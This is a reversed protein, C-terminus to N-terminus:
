ITEYKIPKVDIKNAEEETIKAFFVFTKTGIWKVGFANFSGNKYCCYNKNYKIELQWKNDKILKNLANTYKMFDKVSTPNRWKKYFEEDYVDMGSVPKSKKYEKEPELKNVLLLQNHEDVWRKVEILDVKYNIKNVLDLTSQLIKPAIVLIRVEFDNWSITLDEPKKECEM